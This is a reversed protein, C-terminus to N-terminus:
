FDFVTSYKGNQYNKTIKVLKESFKVNVLLIIWKSKQSKQDLGFLKIRKIQYYEDSNMKIPAFWTLNYTKIQKMESKNTKCNSDGVKLWKM